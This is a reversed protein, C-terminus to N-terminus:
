PKVKRAHARLADEVRQCADLANDDDSADLVSRVTWAYSADEPSIEPRREVEARLREIEVRSEDLRQRSDECRSRLSESVRAAEDLEERMRGLEVRITAEGEEKGVQHATRLAEAILRRRAYDADAGFTSAVQCDMLVRQALDDFRDM